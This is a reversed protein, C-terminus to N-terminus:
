LTMFTNNVACDVSTSVISRPTDRDETFTANRKRTRDSRKSSSTLTPNKKQRPRLVSKSVDQAEILKSILGRPTDSQSDDDM